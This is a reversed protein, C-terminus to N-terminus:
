TEGVRRPLYYIKVSKTVLQVPDKNSRTNELALSGSELSVNKFKRGGKQSLIMLSSFSGVKEFGQLSLLFSKTYVESLSGFCGTNLCDKYRSRRPGRWLDGSVRSSCVPFVRRVAM